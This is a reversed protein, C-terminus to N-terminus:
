IGDSNFHWRDIWVDDHSVPRPSHASLLGVFVLSITESNSFLELM